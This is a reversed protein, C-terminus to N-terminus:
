EGGVKKGTIRPFVGRTSEMDTRASRVMAEALADLARSDEQRLIEAYAEPPVEGLDEKSLAWTAKLRVEGSAIESELITGDSFEVKGM